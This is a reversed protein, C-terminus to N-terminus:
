RRGKKKVKEGNEEISVEKRKSDEGKEKQIQGNKMRGEGFFNGCYYWTSLVGWSSCGLQQVKPLVSQSSLVCM